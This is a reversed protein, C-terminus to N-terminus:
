TWRICYGQPCRCPMRVASRGVQVQVPLAQVPLSAIDDILLCEGDDGLQGRVPPTSTPRTCRTIITPWSGGAVASPPPIFLKREASDSGIALLGPPSRRRTEALGHPSQSGAVSGFIRASPDWWAGSPYKAYM